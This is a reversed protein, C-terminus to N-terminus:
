HYHLRTTSISASTTCINDGLARLACHGCWPHRTLVKVKGSYLLRVLSLVLSDVIVVCVHQDHRLWVWVGQLGYYVHSHIHLVLHLVEDLM